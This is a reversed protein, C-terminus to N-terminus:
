FSSAREFGGEQALEIIIHAVEKLLRENRRMDEDTFGSINEWTYDPLFCTADHFGDVADPREFLVKVRGDPLIDSHVVETGDNLTLYRYMM